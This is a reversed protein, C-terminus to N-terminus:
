LFLYKKILSFKQFEGTNDNNRKKKKSTSQEESHQNINTSETQQFLRQAKKLSKEKFYDNMSQNSTVYHNDSVKEKEKISFTL